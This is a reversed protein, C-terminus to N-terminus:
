RKRFVEVEVSKLSGRIPVSPKQICISLSQILSFEALLKDAITNACLELIQFQQSEMIEKIDAYVKTYDVTDDLHHINADLDPNTYLTASVVFRQGLKREEDHVGHYGYFVMENLCIKM